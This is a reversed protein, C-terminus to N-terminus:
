HPQEWCYNPCGPGCTAEGAGPPLCISADSGCVQNLEQCCGQDCSESASVAAPRSFTGFLLGVCAAVLVVARPVRPM